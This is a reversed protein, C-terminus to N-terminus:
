ATLIREYCLECPAAAAYQVDFMSPTVTAASEAEVSAPVFHEEM